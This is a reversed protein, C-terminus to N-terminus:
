VKSVSESSGAFLDDVYLSTNLMEFTERYEEKYIRIHYKITAGLVFLNSTAGFPVRTMRMFKYSKIGGENPYWFFRLYKRDEEAIGITLFEGQIDSCFAHEYERFRLVVDIIRPNLAPGAYICENLSKCDTGKSSAYFVM